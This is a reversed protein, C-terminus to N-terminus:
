RPDLSLRVQRGLARTRTVLPLTPSVPVHDKGAVPRQLEPGGGADGDARGACLRIIPVTAPRSPGPGTLTTALAPTGIGAVGPLWGVAAEVTVTV